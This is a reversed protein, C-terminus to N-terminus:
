YLHVAVIHLIVALILVIFLPVHLIHWLAFLREYIALSAGRDIAGFYDHLHEAVILRRNRSQRRSWGQRQSLQNIARDSEGILHRMLRRARRRTMFAHWLRASMSRPLNLARREFGDLKDWTGAGPMLENGLEHRVRLAEAHLDPVRAREGYLGLHIRGYLYRGVLGSGAVIILSFLAVNSNLAGLSFNSHLLVMAPAMLGLAMHLRFWGGVRGLRRLWTVRKRLPYLLVVLLMTGAMIGFAYGAGHEPNILGHDKLLWAGVLLFTLAISLLPLKSRRNPKVTARRGHRMTRGVSDTRGAPKPYGPLLPEIRTSTAREM